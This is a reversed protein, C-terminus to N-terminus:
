GDGDVDLEAKLEESANAIVAGPQPISIYDIWLYMGPLKAKWEAGTMGVSSQYVLNMFANEKIAIKWSMLKRIVRQLHELQENSPDPHNFATWQHSIFIVEVDNDDTIEKLVGAELLDQHPQWAELKLLETVPIVWFPYKKASSVGLVTAGLSGRVM